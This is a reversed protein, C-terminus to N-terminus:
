SRMGAALRAASPASTARGGERGVTRAGHALAVGVGLLTWTVPDELFDAYLMTHFVLALFAAGV